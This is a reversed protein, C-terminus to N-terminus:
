TIHLSIFRAELHLLKVLVCFLSSHLTFAIPEIFIHRSAVWRHFCSDTKHYMSDFFIKCCISKVIYCFSKAAFLCPVGIHCLLSNQEEFYTPPNKQLKASLLHTQWYIFSLYLLITFFSLIIIIISRWPRLHAVMWERTPVSCLRFVVVAVELVWSSFCSYVHMYLLPELGRTM